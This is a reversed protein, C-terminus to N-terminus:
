EDEKHTGAIVTDIGYVSTPFQGNGKAKPAPYLQQFLFQDAKVVLEQLVHNDQITVVLLSLFIKPGFGEKIKIRRIFRDILAIGTGRIHWLVESIFLLDAQCIEAFFYAFRTAFSHKGVGVGPLLIRLVSEEVVEIGSEM